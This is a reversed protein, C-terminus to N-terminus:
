ALYTMWAEEGTYKRGVGGLRRCSLLTVGGVTGRTPMQGLERNHKEYDGNASHPYNRGMLDFHSSHEAGLAMFM